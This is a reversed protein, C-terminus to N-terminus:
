ARVPGPWGSRARKNRGPAFVTDQQSDPLFACVAAISRKSRRIRSRGPLM